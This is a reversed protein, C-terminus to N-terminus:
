FGKRGTEHKVHFMKLITLQLYNATLQLVRFRLGLVMVYNTNSACILFRLIRLVKDLRDHPSASNYRQHSGEAVETGESDM